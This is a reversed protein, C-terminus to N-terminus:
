AAFIRRASDYAIRSQRDAADNDDRPVWQLIVSEFHKMAARLQDRLVILHDKNCAWADITQMVVLKSDGRLVVTGRWGTKYVARLADLAAQYEAVNNSMGDGQAYIKWGTLSHALAAIGPHDLIVWGGCGVGGPNRPGGNISECLGDFHAIVPEM